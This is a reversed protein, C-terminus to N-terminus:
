VYSIDTPVLITAIINDDNIIRVELGDVKFRNGRYRGILVWSKESCWSGSPFKQADKYADPGLKVVYASVTAFSEKERIADPVIIGGKTKASPYYPIILVRYGTPQPLRELASPELNSPDSENKNEEKKKGFATELPKPLESSVKKDKAAARAVHEPVFLKKNTM